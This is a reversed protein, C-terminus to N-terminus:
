PLALPLMPQSEDSGHPIYLTSIMQYCIMQYSREDSGHPIYLIDAFADYLVKTVGKMQVM